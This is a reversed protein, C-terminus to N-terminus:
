INHNITGKASDDFGIEKIADRVVAQYDPNANTTIEGLIMIM